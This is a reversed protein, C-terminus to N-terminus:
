KQWRSMMQTLVGLLSRGYPKPLASDRRRRAALRHSHRFGASSLQRLKQRRLDSSVFSVMLGTIFGDPVLLSLSRAANLDTTLDLMADVLCRWDDSLPEAAMPFNVLLTLLYLSASSSLPSERSSWCRPESFVESELAAPPFLFCHLLCRQPFSELM